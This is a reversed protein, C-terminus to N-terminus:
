KQRVDKMDVLASQLQQLGSIVEDLHSQYVTKLRAEVFTNKRTVVQKYQEVQILNFNFM